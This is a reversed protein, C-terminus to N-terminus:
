RLLLIVLVLNGIIITLRGAQTPLALLVHLGESARVSGAQRGVRRGAHAPGVVRAAQTVGLAGEGEAGGVVCAVGARVITHAAAVGVGRVGDDRVGVVPLGRGVADLHTPPYPNPHTPNQQPLFLIGYRHVVSM